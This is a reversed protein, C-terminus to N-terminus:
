VKVVQFLHAFQRRLAPPLDAVDRSNIVLLEDRAVFTYNFAIYTEGKKLTMIESRTEGNRCTSNLTVEVDRKTEISMAGCFDINGKTQSATTTINAKSRPAMAIRLGDAEVYHSTSNKMNSLTIPSTSLSNNYWWIGAAILAIITLSAAAAMNFLRTTGFLFIKKREPGSSQISEQLSQWIEGELKDVAEVPYIVEDDLVQLELWEEVAKKEQPSCLNLNYREILEKTIKM